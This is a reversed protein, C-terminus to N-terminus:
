PQFNITLTVIVPVLKGGVSTPEYTWQRIADLAAQDLGAIGRLIHSAEVEGKTNILAEVVVIGSAGDLRAQEPYEPVVKSLLRPMKIPGAVRVANAPPAWAGDSAAPRTVRSASPAASSSGDPGGDDPPFGPNRPEGPSPPWGGPASADEGLGMEFLARSARWRVWPDPDRTLTRLDKASAADKMIGLGDAAAMRVGADPDKLAARMPAIARRDSLDGLARIAGIRAAPHADKLLGMLPDAARPDKLSGLARAVDGRVGPDLDRLTEVLADLSQLDNINRLGGAAMSRVAANRDKLSAMLAIVTDANSSFGHGLVNAALERVGPNRDRLSVAILPSVAGQDQLCGLADVSAHRVRADVDSLAGILARLVMPNKSGVECLTQAAEVRAEPTRAQLQALWKKATAATAASASALDATAVPPPQGGWGNALTMAKAVEAPTMKQALARLADGDLRGGARITLTGALNRWAYALVLNKPVGDGEEYMDSIRTAGAVFGQSAAKHSWIFAMEKDTQLGRGGRAYLEGLEVQAEGNGQDAAKRTWRVGETDSQAVGQGLFYSWGLYYQALLHGQDAARRFLAASKGYDIPVGQGQQYALGLRVQAEANGKEADAILQRSVVPAGNGAQLTLLVCLSLTIM